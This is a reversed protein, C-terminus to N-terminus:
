RRSYDVNVGRCLNALKQGQFHTRMMWGNLWRWTQSRTLFFAFSFFKADGKSVILGDTLGWSPMKEGEGERARKKKKKCYAGFLCNAKNCHLQSAPGPPMWTWGSNGDRLSFRGHSPPLNAADGRRLPPLRGLLLAKKKKKKKICPPPLLFFFSPPLLAPQPPYLSVISKIICAHERMWQFPPFPVSASHSPTLPPPVGM